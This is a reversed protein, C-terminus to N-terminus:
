PLTYTKDFFPKNSPGNNDCVQPVSTGALSVSTSGVTVKLPTLYHCTGASDTAVIRLQDGSNATFILPAFADTAKNQDSFIIQDNLYITVDDDVSWWGEPVQSSRIYFGTPLNDPGLTYQNLPPLTYTQDFFPTTSAGNGDCVQPVSTGPLSMSAKGVSVKLPTLYHCAGASDTAVIRM